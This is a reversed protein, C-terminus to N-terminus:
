WAHPALQSASSSGICQPAVHLVHVAGDPAVATHLPPLQVNVQELPVAHMACFRHVFVFVSRLLQPVHPLAQATAVLQVTPAHLTVNPL